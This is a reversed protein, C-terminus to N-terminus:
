TIRIIFIPFLLMAVTRLTNTHLCKHSAPIAIHSLMAKRHSPSMTLVQFYEIWIGSAHTPLCIINCPKVWDRWSFHRFLLKLYALVVNNRHPENVEGASSVRQAASWQRVWHSEESTERLKELWTTRFIATTQPISFGIQKTYWFIISNFGLRYTFRQFM